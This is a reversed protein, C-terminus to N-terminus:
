YSGHAFKCLSGYPCFGHAMFKNCLESKEKSKINPCRGSFRYDEPEGESPTTDACSLASCSSVELPDLLPAESILSM